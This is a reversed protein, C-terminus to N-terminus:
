RLSPDCTDHLESKTAFGALVVHVAQLSLPSSHQLALVHASVMLLMTRCNQLALPLKTRFASEVSHLRHVRPLSSHQTAVVHPSRSSVPADPWHKPPKVLTQISIGWRKDAESDM